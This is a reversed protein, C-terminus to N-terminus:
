TEIARQWQGNVTKNDPSENQMRSKKRMLMTIGKITPLVSENMIRSVVDSFTEGFKGREKLGAIYTM